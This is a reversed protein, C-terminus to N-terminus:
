SATPVPTEQFTSTWTTATVSQTVADQGNKGEFKAFTDIEINVSVSGMADGCDSCEITPTSYKNGPILKGNKNELCLNLDLEADSYVPGDVECSRSLVLKGSNKYAGPKPHADPVSRYTWTCSEATTLAALTSVLFILQSFQM